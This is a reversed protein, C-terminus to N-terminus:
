GSLLSSSFPYAAGGKGSCRGQRSRRPILSAQLLALRSLVFYGWRTQSNGCGRRPSSTFEPNRGDTVCMRKLLQVPAAALATSRIPSALRESPTVVNETMPTAPRSFRRQDAYGAQGNRYGSKM